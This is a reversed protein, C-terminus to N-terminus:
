MFIKERRDNAATRTAAKAENKMPVTEKYATTGHVNRSSM